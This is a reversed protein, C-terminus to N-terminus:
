PWQISGTWRGPCRRSRGSPSRGSRLARGAPRLEGTDSIESGCSETGGDAVFLQRGTWVTLAQYFGPNGPMPAIKHWRRTKLDFAAGDHGTAGNHPAASGILYRGALTLLPQQRPGLPSPPLKSWTFRAIQAATPGHPQGSAPQKPSPPGGSTTRVAQPIVVALVAVLGVALTRQTVRVKRRRRGLRILQQVPPAGDPLRTARALLDRAQEEDTVVIEETILLGAQRLSALGRSARSKVTGPSIGLLHATEAETQDDLYRLVLM